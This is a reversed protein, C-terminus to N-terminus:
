EITSLFRDYVKDILYAIVASTCEVKYQVHTCLSDVYNTAYKSHIRAVSM